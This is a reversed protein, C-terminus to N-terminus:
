LAQYALFRWVIDWGVFFVVSLVFTIVGFWHLGNRNIQSRKDGVIALLLLASEVSVSIYYITSHGSIWTFDDFGWQLALKIAAAIGGTAFLWRWARNAGVRATAWIALAVDASLYISQATVHTEINNM